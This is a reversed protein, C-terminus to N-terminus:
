LWIGSEHQDLVEVPSSQDVTRCAYPFVHAFRSIHSLPATTVSTSSQRQQPGRTVHASFPNVGPVSKDTSTCIHKMSHLISDCCRVLVLVHMSRLAPGVGRATPPRPITPEIVADDLKSGDVTYSASMDVAGCPHQHHALVSTM